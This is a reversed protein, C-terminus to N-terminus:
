NAGVSRKLFPLVYSIPRRREVVIGGDALTGSFVENPPGESSSWAYGSPTDGDVELAALVEIPASDGSLAGVLTDNRLVRRLGEPSVPFDSVSKVTAKMFGFEEARVTSPSVRVAMGPAIKKGQQAPVYLVAELPKAQSELTLIQMGPGVLNGPDVTVELVRGAYPSRIVSVANRRAELQALERRLEDIRTRRQERSGQVQRQLATRESSIQALRVEARSAAQEVEALNAQTALLTGRTILGREVLQAQVQERERLASIQERYDAIARRVSGDESDLAALSQELNRAELPAAELDQAELEALRQGQHSIQLALEPQAVEALVQGPEVVDGSRVTVSSLQGPSAATVAMVADGRLLIGQGRIQTAIEGFVSWFLVVVIVAGFAGLALWSRPSTTQMLTDLQEPSALKELAAKRFMATNSM